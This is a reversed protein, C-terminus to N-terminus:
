ACPAPARSVWVRRGTQVVVPRTAALAPAAGASPVLLGAWEPNARDGVLYDFDSIPVITRRKALLRDTRFKRELFMIHSTTGYRRIRVQQARYSGRRHFVDFTDSEFYLSSTAYSGPVTGRRVRGARLQRADVGPGRSRSGVRDLVQDRPRPGADGSHARQEAGGVSREQERGERSHRRWYASDRHAGCGEAVLFPGDHWSSGHTHSQHIVFAPPSVLASRDPVIWFAEIVLGPGSRSSVAQRSVPGWEPM